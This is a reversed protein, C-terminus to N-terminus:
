TRKYTSSVVMSESRVNERRGPRYVFLFHQSGGFMRGLAGGLLGGLACMELPAATMEILMYECICYM